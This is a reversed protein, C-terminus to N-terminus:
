STNTQSITPSLLHNKLYIWKWNLRIEKFYAGHFSNTRFTTTREPIQRIQQQQRRINPCQHSDASLVIANDPTKERV